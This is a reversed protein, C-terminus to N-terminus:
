FTDFALFGFSGSHLSVCIFVLLGMCGGVFSSEYIGMLVLLHLCICAFALLHLCICAFALL